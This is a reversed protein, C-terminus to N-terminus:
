RRHCNQDRAAAQTPKVISSAENACSSGMVAGSGGSAPRARSDRSSRLSRRQAEEERSAFFGPQCIGAMIEDEHQRARSRHREEELRLQLLSLGGEDELRRTVGAPTVASGDRRIIVLPILSAPTDSRDSVITGATTSGLAISRGIMQGRTELHDESSM